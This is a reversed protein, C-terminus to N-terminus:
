AKIGRKNENQARPHWALRSDTTNYPAPDSRAVTPTTRATLSRAQSRDKTTDISAGGRLITGEPDDHASLSPTRRDPTRPSNGAVRGHPTSWSSYDHRKSPPM